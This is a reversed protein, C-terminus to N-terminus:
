ALMAVEDAHFWGTAKIAAAAASPNSAWLVLALSEEARSCTVYLLRLTRDISTEKGEEANTKDSSSLEKAGFLKDYSFLFGGAESDDMVVMVHPFESGKVVQHTALEAEGSLYAKYLGIQEWPTEFLHSWGRKLRDVRDEKSIVKPPEPPPTPDLFADTLRADADFVRAVLLPQLVERVTAGPKRSLAGFALVADHLKALEARREDIDEPLGQLSKAARLVNMVRFEDVEGLKNFCTSLELVPGLLPRVMSPGSREGNTKPAAADEDLLDMAFYAQFFRGRKAALKHELALTKFSRVDESWATAGTAKLMVAACERERQVKAETDQKADGIFLRVLGGSKEERPHQAFGTKAQTRGALDADWIANILDVVRKQSRHNMKLAPLAWGEPVHSPLDRHGDAYIRQRHDGLLGLSFKGPRAAELRLLADLIGRMTDQSEDILVLPHREELIRQLTPRNDILWAAVRLVTTHSLAGPGYTNKDPHYIFKETARIADAEEAVEQYRARDKDTEGRAKAAAELKAQKLEEDKLALLGERIDADFGDILEWCFAHITSVVTLDNEGLRGSVVNTANKTYTIVRVTQGHSRLRRAFVDGTEHPVVGTVRRLVEVLTRTKGSGAGAFLFFSRPPWGTVYDCIEEVVHADRENGGAAIDVAASAEAQGSM